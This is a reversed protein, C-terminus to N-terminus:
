LVYTTLAWAALILVVAVGCVIVPGIWSFQQMPPSLDGSSPFPAHPAPLQAVAPAQPPVIPSFQQQTGVQQEQAALNAQQEPTLPM